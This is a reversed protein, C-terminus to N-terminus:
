RKLTEILVKFLTEAMGAGPVVAELVTRLIEKSGNLLLEKLGDEVAGNIIKELSSKEKESCHEINKELEKLQKNDIKLEWKEGSDEAIMKTMEVFTDLRCQFVKPNLQYENYQGQTEFFYRVDKIVNVDPISFKILRKAEDYKANNAHKLFEKQWEYGKRPYKLEKREKLSRIRSQTIGLDRGLVYDDFNEGKDLLHEIYFSFLYVELDAKSVTGFNKHFYMDTIDKFLKEKEKDEFKSLIEDNKYKAETKESM